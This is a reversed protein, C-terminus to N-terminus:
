LPQLGLTSGNKLWKILHAMHTSSYTNCRMLHHESPDLDSSQASPGFSDRKMSVGVRVGGAEQVSSLPSRKPRATNIYGVVGREKLLGPELRTKNRQM